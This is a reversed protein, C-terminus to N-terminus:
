VHILEQRLSEFSLEQLVIVTQMAISGKAARQMANSDKANSQLAICQKVRRAICQM